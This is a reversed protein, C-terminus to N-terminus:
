GHIGLTVPLGSVWVPRAGAAQLRRPRSFVSLWKDQHAILDLGPRAGPVSLRSSGIVCLFASVM